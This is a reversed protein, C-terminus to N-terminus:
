ASSSATRSVNSLPSAGFFRTYRSRVSSVGAASRARCHVSNISPPSTFPPTACSERGFKKMVGWPLHASFRRKLVRRSTSPSPSKTIGDFPKKSVVSPWACTLPNSGRFRNAGLKPSDNRISSTPFVFGNLPSMSVQLSSSTMSSYPASHTGRIMMVIVFLVAAPCGTLMALMLLTFAIASLCPIGRKKSAHRKASFARKMWINSSPQRSKDMPAMQWSNNLRTSPHQILM